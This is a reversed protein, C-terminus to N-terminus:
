PNTNKVQSMDTNEGSSGYLQISNIKLLKADSNKM